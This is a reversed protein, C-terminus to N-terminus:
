MIPISIVDQVSDINCDLEESESPSLYALVGMWRPYKPQGGRFGEAPHAGAGQRLLKPLWVAHALFFSLSSVYLVVVTTTIHHPPLM